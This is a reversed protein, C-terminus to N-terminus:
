VISTIMVWLRFEILNTNRTWQSLGNKKKKQLYDILIGWAISKKESWCILCYVLCNDYVKGNDSNDAM